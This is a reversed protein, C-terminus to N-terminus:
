AHSVIGGTDISNPNWAWWMWGAVAAHWYDDTVLYDVLEEMTQTNSPSCIEHCLVDAHWIRGYTVGFTLLVSSDPTHDNPM